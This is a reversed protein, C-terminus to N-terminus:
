PPVILFSLSKNAIAGTQQARSNGDRALASEAQTEVFRFVKMSANVGQVIPSLVKAMVLSKRAAFPREVELKKESKSIVNSALLGRLGENVMATAGPAETIIGAPAPKPAPPLSVRYKAYLTLVVLALAVMEPKSVEAEPLTEPSVEPIPVCTSDILEREEPEPTRKVLPKGSVMAQRWFPPPKKSGPHTAVFPAPMCDAARENPAGTLLRVPMAITARTVPPVPM